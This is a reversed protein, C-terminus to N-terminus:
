LYLNAALFAHLSSDVRTLPNTFTEHFAGWFLKVRIRKCLGYAKQSKATYKIVRTIPMGLSSFPDIVYHEVSKM